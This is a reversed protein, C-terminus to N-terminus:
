GVIADYLRKWFGRKKPTTQGQSSSEPEASAPVEATPPPPPVDASQATTEVQKPKGVTMPIPDTTSSSQAGIAQIRLVYHGKPLGLTALNVRIRGNVPQPKGLDITRAPGAAAPTIELVYKVLLPRGDLVADHDVSADFVLAMGKYKGGSPTGDTYTQARLMGVCLLKATLVLLPLALLSKM